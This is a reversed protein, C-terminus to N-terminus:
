PIQTYADAMGQDSQLGYQTANSLEFDIRLFQAIVQLAVLLNEGLRNLCHHASVADVLGVLLELLQGAAMADGFLLENLKDACQLNRFIGSYLQQFQRRHSVNAIGHRLRLSDFLDGEGRGDEM